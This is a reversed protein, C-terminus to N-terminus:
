AANRSILDITNARIVFPDGTGVTQATQLQMVAFLTDFASSDAQGPDGTAPAGNDYWITIWSVEGWGTNDNASTASGFDVDQQNSYRAETALSGEAIFGGRAVWQGYYGNNGATIRNAATTRSLPTGANPNGPDDTHLEIWFTRDVMADLGIERAADTFGAPM